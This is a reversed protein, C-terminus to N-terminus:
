LLMVVSQDLELDARVLLDLCFAIKVVVKFILSLTQGVSGFQYMIKVFVSM